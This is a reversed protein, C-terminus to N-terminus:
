PHNKTTILNQQIDEPWEVKWVMPNFNLIKSYWVGGAGLKCADSHGTYRPDMAVLQAVHTPHKQLFQIMYKWDELILKLSDTMYIFDPDGIM